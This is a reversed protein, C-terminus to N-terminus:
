AINKCGSFAPSHRARSPHQPVGAVVLVPPADARRRQTRCHLFVLVLLAFGARVERIGDYVHTGHKWHINPHFIKTRFRVSPAVLPYQDPVVIALEFMGGEYPTDIPGKVLRTRAATM